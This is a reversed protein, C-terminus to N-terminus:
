CYTEDPCVGAQYSSKWTLWQCIVDVSADRFKSHFYANMESNTRAGKQEALYDLIPKFFLSVNM